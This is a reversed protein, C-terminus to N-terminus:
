TVTNKDFNFVMSYISADNIPILIGKSTPTEVHKYKSSKVLLKLIKKQFLFVKSFDGIIYFLSNDNRLVGSKTWNYKINTREYFEIYINNTEKM